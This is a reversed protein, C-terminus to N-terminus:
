ISDCVEKGERVKTSSVDYKQKASENIGADAESLLKDRIKQLADLFAALDSNAKVADIATSLLQGFLINVHLM